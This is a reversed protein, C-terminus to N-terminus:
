KTLAFTATYFAAAVADVDVTSALLLLAYEILPILNLHIELRHCTSHTHLHM